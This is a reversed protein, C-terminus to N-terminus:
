TSDLSRVADEVRGGVRERGVVDVVGTRELMDLATGHVRALALPIGMDALGTALTLLAEAAPVDLDNTAELDLVVARAPPERDTAASYIDDLVSEANAFFLEADPRVVLITPHM